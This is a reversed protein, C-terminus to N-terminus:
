SLTKSAGHVKAASSLSSMGNNSSPLFNAKYQNPHFRSGWAVLQSGTSTASSSIPRALIEKTL